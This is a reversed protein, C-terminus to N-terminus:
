RGARRGTFKTGDQWTVQMADGGTFEFYLTDNGDPTFLMLQGNESQGGGRVPNGQLSVKGRSSTGDQGTLTFNASADIILTRRMPLFTNEPTLDWRGVLAPSVRANGAMYQYTARARADDQRRQMDYARQRSADADAQERPVGGSSPAAQERPQSQPGRQNLMRVIAFNMENADERLRPPIGASGAAQLYRFAQDYQGAQLFNKALEFLAEGSGATAQDSFNTDGRANGIRPTRSGPAPVFSAAAVFQQQAETQRGLAQYAKGAALSSQALLTAANRPAPVVAGGEPRDDPLMAPFMERSLQSQAVRPRLATNGAYFAAAGAMDGAAEARAGLRTRLRMALAFDLPDRALPPNPADRPEDSRVRAEELALATRFAAVADSGRGQAEAMVGRYAPVRADVPDLQQARTLYGDVAAWNGRQMQTWALRLLPAATTQILRRETAQQEEARDKQGIKAYFDVLADQAELSKPDLVAARELAAQAGATDGDWLHLDAEILLEGVSGKSAQVAREMAARARRRLDAAAADLQSARALDAGSPPYCTTTTIEEIYSGRDENRTSSSCREQRLSAAESSFQDAREARFHAYLRLADANNGASALAKDAVAEAEDYRRLAMLALAKQILAGAQTGDTTLALDAIQIARTLEATRSTQTRYLQTPRRPEVTDGRNDAESVIYRALDALRDASKPSAAVADELARLTDQYLEDYQLRHAASAAHARLALDTLQGSEASGAAASALDAVVKTPDGDVRAGALDREISARVRSTASADLKGATELDAAVRSSDGMRAAAAARGLYGQAFRTQGTLALTYERRATAARGLALWCNASLYVLDPNDPYAARAFELERLAAAYQGADHLTAARTAHAPALDARRMARAAFWQGAKLMAARMPPAHVADPTGKGGLDPPLRLEQYANGLEYAIVTGYASTYDNGGQAMHGPISVLPRVDRGQMSRPAGGLVHDPTIIGSMGEAAYTWLEAERLRPSLQRARAFDNMAPQFQEALTEAVGRALVFAADDGNGQLARTFHGVADAWAGQNLADLGDLYALLPPSAAPPLPAAVAPLMTAATTAKSPLAQSSAPPATSPSAGNSDSRSGCAAFLLCVVVAAAPRPPM